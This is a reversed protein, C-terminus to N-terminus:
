REFTPRSLNEKEYNNTEVRAESRSSKPDRSLWNIIM